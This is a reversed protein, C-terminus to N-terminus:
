ETGESIRKLMIEMAQDLLEDSDYKGHKLGQQIRRLRVARLDTGPGTPTSSDDASKEPVIASSETDADGTEAYQPLQPNQSSEDTNTMGTWKM